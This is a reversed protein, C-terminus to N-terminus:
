FLENLAWRRDLGKEGKAGQDAQFPKNQGSFVVGDMRGAEGDKQGGQKETEEHAFAEAPPDARNAQGRIKCFSGSLFQM